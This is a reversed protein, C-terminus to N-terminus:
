DKHLLFGGGEKQVTAIKAVTSNKDLEKSDFINKIHRSIGSKDTNFIQAIQNLSLWITERDLKVDIKVKNDPTKYIVIDGKKIEKNM